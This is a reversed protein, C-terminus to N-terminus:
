WAHQYWSNNIHERDLASSQDLWNPRLENAPAEDSGADIPRGDIVIERIIRQDGVQGAPAAHALPGSAFPPSTLLVAAAISIMRIQSLMTKELRHARTLRGACPSAAYDFCAMARAELRFEEGSWQGFYTQEWYGNDGFNPSAPSVNTQEPQEGPYSQAFAPGALLTVLALAAILAKM